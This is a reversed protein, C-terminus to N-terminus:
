SFIEIKGASEGSNFHLWPRKASIIGLLFYPEYLNIMYLHESATEAPLQARHQM